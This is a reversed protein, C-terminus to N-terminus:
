FEIMTDFGWTTSTYTQNTSSAGDSFNFQSTYSEYEVYLRLAVQQNVLYGVKVEPIMNFPLQTQTTSNPFNESNTHGFNFGLQAELYLKPLVHIRDRAIIDAYWRSDYTDSVSSDSADAHSGSFAHGVGAGLAAENFAKRWYGQAFLNVTSLVQGNAGPNGDSSFQESAWTPSYSFQVDASLGQPNEDVIRYSLDFTPDGLGSYAFTSEGNSDAALPNAESVSIRLGPLWPLGYEGYVSFTNFSKRFGGYVTNISSYYNPEFLFDGSHAYYTLNILNASSSDSPSETAAFAPSSVMGYFLIWSAVVMRSNKM